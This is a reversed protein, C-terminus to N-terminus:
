VKQISREHITALPAGNDNYGVLSSGSAVYHEEGLAQFRVGGAQTHSTVPDSGPCSRVLEVQPGETRAFGMYEPPQDTLDFKLYAGDDPALNTVTMPATHVCNDGGLDTIMWTMTGSTLLFKPYKSTPDQDPDRVFTADVAIDVQFLGNSSTKTFHGTWKKGPSFGEGTALPTAKYVSAGGEPLELSVTIELPQKEHVDYGLDLDAEAHWQRDGAPTAFMDLPEAALAVGDVWVRVTYGAADEESAGWFDMPLLLHDPVDDDTYGDIGLLGNTVLAQLSDPDYVRVLDRIRIDQPGIVLYAASGPDGVDQGMSLYVDGTSRGAALGTLFPMVVADTGEGSIADSWGVVSSRRGTMSRALDSEATKGADLVVLVDNLGHPYYHRFFDASVAVYWNGDSTVLDVGPRTEDFRQWPANRPLGAAKITVFCRQGTPGPVRCLRAGHTRVYVVNYGDLSAFTPVDVVTSAETANALSIVNGAYDEIGSILGAVLPADDGAGPLWAVPALTLAAKPFRGPSVVARHTVRTDRTAFGGAGSPTTRMAQAPAAPANGIGDGEVWVPRGGPLRFRITRGDVEVVAANGAQLVQEAEAVTGGGM